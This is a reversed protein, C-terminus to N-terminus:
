KNQAEIAQIRKRMDSSILGNVFNAAEEENTLLEVFLQDYAPTEMFARSIEESKMFRKGDDSKIGYAKLIIDKFAKVIQEREQADVIRQLKKDLGGATTLEMEMLESTTLNFYHDEKRQNGDWDEYVITKKLM